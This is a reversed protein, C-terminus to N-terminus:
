GFVVAPVIPGIKDCHHDQTCTRYLEGPFAEHDSSPSPNSCFVMVPDPEWSGTSSCTSTMVNTPDSNCQFTIQAGEITSTYSNINGNVPAQPEGCDVAHTHNYYHHVTM